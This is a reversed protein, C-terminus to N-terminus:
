DNKPFMLEYQKILFGLIISGVMVADETSLYRPAQGNLLMTGTGELEDDAFWIKLMVPYRPMFSFVACIDANSKTLVAGLMECAKKINEAPERGFIKGLKKATDSAFGHGRALGDPLDSFSILDPGLPTGDAMELYHLMILNWVGYPTQGTEAFTIRCSPYNVIIQQGLSEFRFASTTEDFEVGADRAIKQPSHELLRKKAYDFMGEYARNETEEPTSMYKFMAARDM